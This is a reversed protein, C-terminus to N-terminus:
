AVTKIGLATRLVIILKERCSSASERRCDMLQKFMRTQRWVRFAAMSPEHSDAKWCDKGNRFAGELDSATRQANRSAASTDLIFVSMYLQCATFVLWRTTDDSAEIRPYQQDHEPVDIECAVDTDEIIVSTANEWDVLSFHAGDYVVNPLRVDDHAVKLYFVADLALMCVETFFKERLDSSTTFNAWKQLLTKNKLLSGGKYLTMVVLSRMCKGRSGIYLYMDFLSKMRQKAANDKNYASNKTSNLEILTLKGVLINLQQGERGNYPYVSPSVIKLVVRINDDKLPLKNLLPEKGTRQQIHTFYRAITGWRCDIVNGLKSLRHVDKPYAPYDLLYPQKLLQDTCVTNAGLVKRVYERLAAIVGCGEFSYKFINVCRWPYDLWSESQLQVLYACCRYVLLGYIIYHGDRRKIIPRQMTVMYSVLQRIEGQWKQDPEPTVTMKVEIMLIVNSTNDKSVEVAVDPKDASTTYKAFNGKFTEKFKGKRVVHVEYSDEGISATGRRQFRTGVQQWQEGNAWFEDLVNCLKQALFDSYQSEKEFTQMLFSQREKKSSQLQRVVVNEMANKLSKIDVNDYCIKLNEKKDSSQTTCPTSHSQSTAALTNALIYNYL